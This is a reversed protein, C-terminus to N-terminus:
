AEKYKSGVQKEVLSILRNYSIKGSMTRYNESKNFKEELIINKKCENSTYMFYWHVFMFDQLAYKKSRLNVM